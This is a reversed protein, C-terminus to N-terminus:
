DNSWEQELFINGFNAKNPIRGSNYYDSPIVTFSVTREVDILTKRDYLNIIRFNVYYLYPTLQNKLVHVIFENTEGEKLRFDKAVHFNNLTAVLVGNSQFIQFRIAM